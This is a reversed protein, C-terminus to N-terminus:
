REPDGVRGAGGLLRSRLNKITSLNAATAALPNGGGSIDLGMCFIIGYRDVTMIENDLRDPM